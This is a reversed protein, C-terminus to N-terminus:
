GQMESPNAKSNLIYHVLPNLGDEHRGMRQRRYQAGNFTPNPEYGKAAGLRLYHEVPPMIEQRSKNYTQRYWEVDFLGSDEILKVCVTIFCAEMAPLTHLKLDPSTAEEPACPYDEPSCGPVPFVDLPLRPMRPYSSHIQELSLLADLRRQLMAEPSEEIKKQMVTMGKCTACRLLLAEWQQFIQQQDFCTAWSRAATGLRHRLAADDILIRLAAALSEARAEQVLIGTGSTVIEKVGPCQALGVVPLAAAFAELVATPFGEQASPHCFLAANMLATMTDDTIGPLNIKKELGHFRVWKELRPREPGEGHITLTWEPHEQTLLAFAELLLAYNKSAILRGMGMIIPPRDRHLPLHRPLEVGNPIVCVRQQMYTPLSAKYTHLLLHINDAGSLATLRDARNWRENELLQPNTRESLLLPIGTGHLIVTWDLMADWSFFAVCVDPNLCTLLERLQRRSTATDVLRTRVLRVRADLLFAAAGEGDQALVTVEHGQAALYSALGAGLREIGGKGHLLGHLILAIRKRDSFHAM